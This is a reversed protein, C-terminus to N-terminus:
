TSNPTIKGYMATIAKKTPKKMRMISQAPEATGNRIGVVDPWPLDSGHILNLAISLGNVVPPTTARINKSTTM